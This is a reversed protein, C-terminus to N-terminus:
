VIMELALITDNQPHICYVRFEPEKKLTIIRKVVLLDTFVKTIRRGQVLVLGCFLGSKLKFSIEV